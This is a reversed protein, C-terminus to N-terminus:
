WPWAAAAEEATDPSVSAAPPSRRSTPRRPPDFPAAAQTAPAEQRSTAASAASPTEETAVSLPAPSGTAPLRSLACRGGRPRRTLFLWFSGFGSRQPAPAAAPWSVDATLRDPPPRRRAGRRRRAPPPRGAAPDAREHCTRRSIPAPASTWWCIRRLAEQIPKKDPGTYFAETFLLRGGTSLEASARAAPTGSPGSASWSPRSRRACSRPSCRPRASRAATSSSWRDQGQWVRRENDRRLDAAGRRAATLAGLDGNAFLRAM